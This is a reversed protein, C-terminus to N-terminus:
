LVGAYEDLGGQDRVRELTVGGPAAGKGLEALRVAMGPEPGADVFGHRVLREGVDAPRMSPGVHWSGPVGKARMLERSAVIAADAEGPALDARVVCNHYPLPSGGITWAVKADNREEGGGARGM